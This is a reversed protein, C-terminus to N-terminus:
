KKMRRQQDAYARLQDLSMARFDVTVSTPASGVIGNEIPRKTGSAISNATAIQAQQVATATAGRMIEDYHTAVYAATTDGNTSSLIRVFNPNNLETALDFGPYKAQTKAANVRVVEFQARQAEEEKRQAQAVEAEKVKRELTVFKRAESPTMDNDEAYKEYYSDDSEVAKSLKEMYDKDEPNLGYKTGITALLAKASKLSEEQGKYKKLRDSITKEMYDHHAAKYKDSKILEEYTLDSENAEDKGTDVKEKPKEESASTRKLAELYAERGREPISSPIKAELTSSEGSQEGSPTGDGTASGSGDGGEGFRLLKLKFLKM